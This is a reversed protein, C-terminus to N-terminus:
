PNPEKLRTRGHLWRIDYLMAGIVSLRTAIAFIRIWYDLDPNEGFFSTSRFSAVAGNVILAVLVFWLLPPMCDKAEHVKWVYYMGVVLVGLAMVFAIDAYALGADM